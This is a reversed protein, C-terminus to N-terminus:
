EGLLLVIKANKFIEPDLKKLVAVQSDSLVINSKKRRYVKSAKLELPKNFVRINRIADGHGFVYGVSTNRKQLMKKSLAGAPYLEQGNEDVLRVILAKEFGTVDSVDILMGTFKTDIDGLITEIEKVAASNNVAKMDSLLKQLTEKEAYSYSSSAMAPTIISFSNWLEDVKENWSLKTPDSLLAKLLDEGMRLQVRATASGKKENYDNSVVQAGRIVGNVRSIIIDNGAIGDRITTQSDLRVGQIVELLNRQAIVVAVRKAAFSDQGPASEGECGIIGQTWNIMCPGSTDVADRALLTYSLVFMLVVIKLLKM